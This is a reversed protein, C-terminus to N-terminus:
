NDKVNIIKIYYIYYKIIERIIKLSFFDNKGLFLSFM